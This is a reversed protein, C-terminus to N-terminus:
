PSKRGLLHRGFFAHLRVYDEPKTFVVHGAGEVQVLTVDCGAAQLARHLRRSQDIPVVQDNTGHVLLIPPDDRSVHTVPSAARAADKKEQVPGGFLKYVSQGPRNLRESDLGFAAFDAPGCYAVAAAVRSSVGTPGLPGELEKVDGSTGLLAALHGGASSGWVAIREPDLGLQGANARLYRIAAKCDHIQAPWTATGSLRYGISAAVYDGTRVFPALRPAANGGKNGREWGGGHIWVICPRPSKGGGKPRYFDLTLSVDGARAYEIDAQIEIAERWSPDPALMKEAQAIAMAPFLLAGALVGTRFPFRLPTPISPMLASPNPLVLRAQAPARVDGGPPM